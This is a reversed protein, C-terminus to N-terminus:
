STKFVNNNNLLMRYTLPHSGTFERADRGTWPVWRAHVHGRKCIQPAAGSIGNVDADQTVTRKSGTPAPPARESLWM